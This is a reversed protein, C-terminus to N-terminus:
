SPKAACTALAGAIQQLADVLVVDDEEATALERVPVSLDRCQAPSWAKAYATIHRAWTRALERHAEAFGADHLTMLSGTLMGFTGTGMRKFGELRTATTPDAPDLSPVLEDFITTQERGFVAVTSRMWAFLAAPNRGSRMFAKGVANCDLFLLRAQEAREELPLGHDTIWGLEAEQPPATELGDTGHAEVQARADRIAAALETRTRPHATAEHAQEIIEHEAQEASTGRKGCAALGTMLTVTWAVKGMGTM